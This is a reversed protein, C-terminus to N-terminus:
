PQKTLPLTQHRTIQLDEVDVATETVRTLRYRGMWIDGERLNFHHQSDDMLTAILAKSNPAVSAFGVYKLPIPPPPPPPPRDQRGPHRRCLLQRLLSFGQLRSRSATM